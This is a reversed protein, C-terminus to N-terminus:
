QMKHVLASTRLEPHHVNFLYYFLVDNGTAEAKFGDFVKRGEVEMRTRITSFFFPKAIRIAEKILAESNKDNLFSDIV